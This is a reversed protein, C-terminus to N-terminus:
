KIKSAKERFNSKNSENETNSCKNNTAVDEEKHQEKGKKEKDCLFSMIIGGRRKREREKAVVV